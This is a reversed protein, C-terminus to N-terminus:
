FVLFVIKFITLFSVPFGEFCSANHSEVPMSFQTERGDIHTKIFWLRLIDGNTDEAFGHQRRVMKHVM